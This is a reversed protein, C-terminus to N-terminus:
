EGPTAGQLAQYESQWTTFCDTFDNVDMEDFTDMQGPAVAELMAFMGAADLNVDNMRRILKLKIRLPLTVDPLTEGEDSDPHWTFAKGTVDYERGTATKKKPM